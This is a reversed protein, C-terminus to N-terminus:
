PQDPTAAPGIGAPSSHGVQAHCHVCPIPALPGPSMHAIADAHCRRCNDELIDGNARGIRIPEDFNGTTFARSHHWGNKMKAVYKAVFSTPLHCDSCTAVQHHSGHQWSDLQPQMVHCNACAESRTSFYSFAKGEVMTFGGLAVAFALAFVAAVPWKGRASRLRKAFWM